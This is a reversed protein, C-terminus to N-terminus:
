TARRAERGSRGKVKASRTRYDERFGGGLKGENM